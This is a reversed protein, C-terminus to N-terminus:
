TSPTQSCEFHAVASNQSLVALLSCVLFHCLRIPFIDEIGSSKSRMICRSDLFCPTVNAVKKLSRPIAKQRNQNSQRNFQWVSRKWLDLASILSTKAIGFWLSTQSHLRPRLAPMLYASMAAGRFLLHIQEERPMQLITVSHYDALHCCSKL